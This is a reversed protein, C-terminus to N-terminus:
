ILNNNKIVQKKIGFSVTRQEGMQWYAKNNFMTPNIQPYFRKPNCQLLKM